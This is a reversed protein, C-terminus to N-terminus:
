RPLDNVRAEWVTSLDRGSLVRVIEDEVVFVALDPIGDLDADGASCADMRRARPAYSLLLDGTCGSYVRAFGSSPHTILDSENAAVVFDDGGDGDCDGIWDVTSGAASMDLMSNDEYEASVHLPEFTRGSFVGFGCHIFSVLVDPTGDGDADGDTALAWSGRTLCDPAVGATFTALEELGPGHRAEAGGARRGIVVEARGDDNMDPSIAVTLWRRSDIERRESLLRGDWGSFVHVSSLSSHIGAHSAVAIDPYGDGDFDGGGAVCTGFYHENRESCLRHLFDGNRGSFVNAFGPESLQLPLAGVVFDAHGDQNVDGVGSLSQGFGDGPADGAVSYLVSGDRGCLVWVVEIERGRSAVLLDQMGDCNVDGASALRSRLGDFEDAPALALILAGDTVQM